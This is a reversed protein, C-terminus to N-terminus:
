RLWPPLGQELGPPAPRFADTTHQDIKTPLRPGRDVATGYAFPNHTDPERLLRGHTRNWAVFRVGRREAALVLWLTQDDRGSATLVLQAESNV